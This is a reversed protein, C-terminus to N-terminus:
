LVGYMCLIANRGDETYLARISGPMNAEAHFDITFASPAPEWDLYRVVSWLTYVKFSHPTDGPRVSTIINFIDDGSYNPTVYVNGIATKNPYLGTFEVLVGVSQCSMTAFGTNYQWGISSASLTATAHTQANFTPYNQTTKIHNIQESLKVLKNELSYDQYTAM